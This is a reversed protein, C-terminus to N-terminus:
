TRSGLAAREVDPAHEPRVNFPDVYLLVIERLRENEERLRENEADKAAVEADRAAHGARATETGAPIGAADRLAAWLADADCPESCTWRGATYLATAAKRLADLDAELQDIRLAAQGMLFSVNTTYEPNIRTPWARLQERLWVYESAPLLADDPEIM